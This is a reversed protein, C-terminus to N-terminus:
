VATPEEKRAKQEALLVQVGFELRKQTEINLKSIDASLEKLDIKKEPM